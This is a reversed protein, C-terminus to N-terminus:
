GQRQQRLRETLWEALTAPNAAATNPIVYGTNMFGRVPAEILRLVPNRAALDAAYFEPTTCVVANVQRSAGSPGVVKEVDTWPVNLRQGWRAVQIGQADVHLPPKGGTVFELHPLVGLPVFVCLAALGLIMGVVGMLGAAMLGTAALALTIKAFTAVVYQARLGIQVEGSKELQATWSEAAASDVVPPPPWVGVPRRLYMITTVLLAVGLVCAAGGLLNAWWPDDTSFAEVLGVVIAVLFWFIAIAWLVGGLFVAEVPRRPRRNWRGNADTM